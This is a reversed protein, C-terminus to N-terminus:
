RFLLIQLLQAFKIEHLKKYKFSMVLYNGKKYLYFTTRSNVIQAKIM